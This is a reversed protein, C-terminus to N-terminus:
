DTQPQATNRNMKWEVLKTFINPHEVTEFGFLLNLDM